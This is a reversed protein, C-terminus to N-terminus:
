YLAYIKNALDAINGWSSGDTFISIVLNGKKTYCIGADNLIGNVFGVKDAVTGYNLLGAPIGNRFRQIKMTNIWKERLEPTLIESNYLKQLLLTVDSATSGFLEVGENYVSKGTLNSIGISRIDSLLENTRSYLWAEACDNDSNVIMSYFCADLTTGNLPSDWSLGNQVAKLESYAVFLKYVSATAIHDNAQYTWSQGTLLDLVSISIHSGFFYKDVIDSLAENSLKYIRVDTINSSTQVEFANEESEFNNVFLNLKSILDRYDISSNPTTTEYKKVLNRLKTEVISLSYENVAEDFVLDSVSLLDNYDLKIEDRKSGDETIFTITIDQSSLHKTLEHSYERADEISFEPDEYHFINEISIPLNIDQIEYDSIVDIFKLKTYDWHKPMEHTAITFIDDTSIISLTANESKEPNPAELIDDDFNTFDAFPPSCPEQNLAFFYSFPILRKEFPYDFMCGISKEFNAKIGLEGITVSSIEENTDDGYIVIEEESFIDDLKTIALSKSLGSVDVGFVDKNPSLHDINCTLQFIM